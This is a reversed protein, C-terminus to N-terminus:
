YATVCLNTQAALELKRGWSLLFFLIKSRWGEDRLFRFDSVRVIDGWGVVLLRRSFVMMTILNKEKM